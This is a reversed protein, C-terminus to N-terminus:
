AAMTATQATTAVPSYAEIYAIRATPRDRPNKPDGTSTGDIGSVGVPSV